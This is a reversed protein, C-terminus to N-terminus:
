NRRYFKFDVSSIWFINKNNIDRWFNFFFTISVVTRFDFFNDFTQARSLWATPRVPLWVLLCGPVHDTLWGALWGGFGMWNPM